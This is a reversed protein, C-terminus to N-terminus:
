SRARRRSCRRWQVPQAIQKAVLQGDSSGSVEARATGAVAVAVVMMGSCHWPKMQNM